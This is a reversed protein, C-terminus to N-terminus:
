RSWRRPASPTRSGPGPGGGRCSGGGVGQGLPAVVDGLCLHRHERVAAQGHGVGGPKAAYTFALSCSKSRSATSFPSAASATRGGPRHGAASGRWSGAPSASSPAGGGVLPGRGRRRLLQPDARLRQEDLEGSTERSTALQHEGAVVAAPGHQRRPEEGLHLTVQRAEDLGAGASRVVGAGARSWSWGLLAIGGPGSGPGSAAVRGGLRDGRPPGHDGRVRQERRQRTACRGGRSRRGQHGRVAPRHDVRGARDGHVRLPRRARGLPRPHECVQQQVEPEAMGVRSARSRAREVGRM